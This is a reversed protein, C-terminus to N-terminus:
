LVREWGSQFDSWGSLFGFWSSPSRFWGRPFGFWSSRSRFWGLTSDQNADAPCACSKEGPTMNKPRRLRGIKKSFRTSVYPFDGINKPFFDALVYPFDGINEIESTAYIYAM